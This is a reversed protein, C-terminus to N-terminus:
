YYDKLVIGCNMCTYQHYYRDIGPDFGDGEFSHETSECRPCKCDADLYEVLLEKRVIPEVRRLNKINIKEGSKMFAFRNGYMDSWFGNIVYKNGVPYKRGKYVEVELGKEERHGEIEYDEIVKYKGEEYINLIGTTLIETAM